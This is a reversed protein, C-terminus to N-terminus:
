GAWFTLDVRQNHMWGAATQEGADTPGDVTACTFRYGMSEFPQAVAAIIARALARAEGLNLAYCDAQVRMMQRGSAGRLHSNDPASIKTLRAAPGEEFPPRQMWSLRNGAVDAIDADALLFQMLAAEIV